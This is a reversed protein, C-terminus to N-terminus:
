APEQISWTTSHAAHASCHPHVLHIWSLKLLVRVHVSFQQKGSTAGSAMGVAGATDFALCVLILENFRVWVHTLSDVQIPTQVVRGPAVLSPHEHGRGHSNKCAGHRPIPVACACGHPYVLYLGICELLQHVCTPFLVSVFLSHRSVQREKQPQVRQVPQM